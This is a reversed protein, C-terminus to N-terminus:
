CVRAPRSSLVTRVKSVTSVTIRRIGARRWSLKLPYMRTQQPTNTVTSPVGTFRKAFPYLSANSGNDFRLFRGVLPDHLANSRDGFRFFRNALRLIGFSIGSEACGSGLTPQLSPIPADQSLTRSVRKRQASLLSLLCLCTLYKACVTPDPVHSSLSGPTVM